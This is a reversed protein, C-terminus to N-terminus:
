DVTAVHTSTPESATYTEDSAEPFFLLRSRLSTSQTPEQEDQSYISEFSRKKPVPPSAFPDVSAAEQVEPINLQALMERLSAHSFSETLVSPHHPVRYYLTLDATTDLLRTEMLRRLPFVLSGMSPLFDGSDHSIGIVTEFDHSLYLNGAAICRNCMNKHGPVDASRKGERALLLTNEDPMLYRLTHKHDSGDNDLKKLKEILQSFNELTHTASPSPSSQKPVSNRIVPFWIEKETLGAQLINQLEHPLLPM